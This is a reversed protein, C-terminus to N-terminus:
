LAFACILRAVSLKTNPAEMMKYKMKFIHHMPSWNAKPDLHLPLLLELKEKPMPKGVCFPPLSPIYTRYLVEHPQFKGLQFVGHTPHM